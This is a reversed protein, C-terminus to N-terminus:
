GHRGILVRLGLAGAPQDLRQQGIRLQPRLEAPVGHLRAHRGPQRLEGRLKLLRTTLRHLRHLHALGTRAERPHHHRHGGFADRDLLDLVDDLM